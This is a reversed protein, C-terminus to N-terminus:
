VTNIMVSVKRLAGKMVVDSFQLECCDLLVCPQTHWQCHLLMSSYAGYSPLPQFDRWETLM